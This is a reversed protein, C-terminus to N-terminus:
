TGLNFLARKKDPKGTSLTSASGRGWVVGAAVVTGHSAGHGSAPPSSLHQVAFRAPRLRSRPRQPTSSPATCGSIAPIHTGGYPWRRSSHALWSALGSRCLGADLCDQRRWRPGLAVPRQCSRPARTIGRVNGAGRLTWHVRPSQGRRAHRGTAASSWSGQQEM